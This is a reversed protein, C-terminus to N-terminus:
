KNIKNFGLYIDGFSGAGLKQGILYKGNIKTDKIDGM